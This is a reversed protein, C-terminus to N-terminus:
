FLLEVAIMIHERLALMSHKSSLLPSSASVFLVFRANRGEAADSRARWPCLLVSSEESWKM